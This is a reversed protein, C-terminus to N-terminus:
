STKIKMRSRLWIKALKAVSFKGRAKALNIYAKVTTEPVEKQKEEPKRILTLAGSPCTSVCLGCGICRDPDLAIGEEGMSLAGMPCRELCAECATCVSSDLRATFASSIVEAPKPHKKITRLVACCCGCCMCINSIKQSNSPQLVLGEEEAKELLALAEEKTIYRGKGTEAYYDAGGGLILCSEEIRDCGEGALKRERRCICPAVAFRKHRSVMEEAKEYPMIKHEVPISKGVPVTRLQPARSWTDIDMLTPIYEEMDRVLERDLSDVHFEWIGIVFQAAMYLCPRGERRSSYILGKRSMEDLRKETEELPLGARKAISAAEELILTLHLALEAEEVSFLRRLIRLEVGSETAPFGGPLDDLHKALRRYLREHDSSSQVAKM